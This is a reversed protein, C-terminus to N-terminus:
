RRGILLGLLFGVGAGVGVAIWPHQHVSDDVRTVTARAQEIVATEARVVANRANAIAQQARNREDANREGSQSATARILEETDNVLVKLDTVVKDSTAANM